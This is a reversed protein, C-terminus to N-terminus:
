NKFFVANSSRSINFLSWLFMWVDIIMCIITVIGYTTFQQKNNQAFEQGRIRMYETVSGALKEDPENIPTSDILDQVSPMSDLIFVGIIGRLIHLM